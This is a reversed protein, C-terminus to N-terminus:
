LTLKILPPFRPNGPSFWRGTALWQCITACLTTDLVGRWSNEKKSRTGDM